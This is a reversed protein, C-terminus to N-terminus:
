RPYFIAFHLLNCPSANSQSAELESNHLRNSPLLSPLQWERTGYSAQILACQKNVLNESVTEEPEDDRRVLM